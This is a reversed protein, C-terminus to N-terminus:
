ASTNLLASQAGGAKARRSKKEQGKARYTKDSANEEAQRAFESLLTHVGQRSQQLMRQNEEVLTKLKHVTERYERALDEIERAGELGAEGAARVLDSLSPERGAPLEVNRQLLLERGAKVRLTELGAIEGLLTETKRTLTQLRHGDASLIARQKIRETELSARFLALEQNLIDQLDTATHM